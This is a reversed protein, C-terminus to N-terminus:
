ILLSTKYMQGVRKLPYLYKCICGHTCKVEDCKQGYKKRYQNDSRFVGHV